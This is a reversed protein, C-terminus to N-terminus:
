RGALEIRLLEITGDEHAVAVQSHPLPVLASVPASHQDARAVVEGGASLVRVNGRKTGIITETLDDADLDAAPAATMPERMYLRWAQRLRQPSDTDEMRHYLGRVDAADTTAILLPDHEASRGVLLDLISGCHFVNDAFRQDTDYRMTFVGGDTGVAVEEVGDGQLYLAVNAEPAGHNVHLYAFGAGGTMLNEGDHSLTRTGSYPDFFSAVVELMGDGNLDSVSATQAMGRQRGRWEDEYPNEWWLSGDSRIVQVYPGVAVIEPSGDGDLDASLLEKAEQPGAGYEGARVEFQWLAQGEDVAYILHDESGVIAEAQGDGDIDASTLATVAAPAQWSWQALLDPGLAMVSGDAAGALLGDGAAVLHTVTQELEMHQVVEAGKYEPQPQQALLRRRATLARDAVSAGQASLEQRAAASVEATRISEAEFGLTEGMWTLRVPGDSCDVSMIGAAPDVQVSVPREASLLTEGALALETAAAVTLTRLGILAMEGVFAIEGAEFSGSACGM